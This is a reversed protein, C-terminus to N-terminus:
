IIYLFSNMYNEIQLEFKIFERLWQFSPTNGFLATLIVVYYENKQHQINKAQLNVSLHYQFTLKVKFYDWVEGINWGQNIQNQLYRKEPQIELNTSGNCTRRYNDSAFTTIIELTDRSTCWCNLILQLADAEVKLIQTKQNQLFNLKCKQSLSNIVWMYNQRTLKM